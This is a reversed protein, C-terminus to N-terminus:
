RNKGQKSIDRGPDFEAALRGPHPHHLVEAVRRRKGELIEPFNAAHLWAIEESSTYRLRQLIAAVSTHRTRAHALCFEDIWKVLCCGGDDPCNEFVEQNDSM